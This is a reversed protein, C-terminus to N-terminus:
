FDVIDEFFNWFIFAMKSKSRFVLFTRSGEQCVRSARLRERLRFRLLPIDRAHALARFFYRSLIVKYHLAPLTMLQRLRYLCEDM